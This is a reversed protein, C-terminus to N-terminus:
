LNYELSGIVLARIGILALSIVVLPDCGNLFASLLRSM